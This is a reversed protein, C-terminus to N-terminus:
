ASRGARDSGDSSDGALQLVYIGPALPASPFLQLEDATDAFNVSALAVPHRHTLRAHSGSQQLAPRDARALITNPDLPGSMEVRIALPSSNLVAGDAPDSSLVTPGDGSVASACMELVNAAGGDTRRSAGRRPAGRRVGPCIQTHCFSKVEDQPALAALTEFSWRVRDSAGKRLAFTRNATAGRIQTCRSASERPHRDPHKLKIADQEPHRTRLPAPRSSASTEARRPDPM